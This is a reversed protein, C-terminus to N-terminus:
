KVVLHPAVLGWITQVTSILGGIALMIGVWVMVARKWTLWNVYVDVLPQAKNEFSKMHRQQRVLLVYLDAMTINDPVKIPEETNGEAEYIEDATM